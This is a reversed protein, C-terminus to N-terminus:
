LLTILKINKKDNKFAPLKSVARNLAPSIRVKIKLYKKYNEMKQRVVYIHHSKRQHSTFFPIKGYKKRPDSTHKTICTTYRRCHRCRFASEDFNRSNGCVHSPRKQLRERTQRVCECVCADDAVAKEALGRDVFVDRPSLVSNRILKNLWVCNQAQTYISGRARSMCAHMRDRHIFTSFRLYAARSESHSANSERTFYAYLNLTCPFFPLSFDCPQCNIRILSQM